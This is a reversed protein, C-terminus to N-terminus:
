SRDRPLKIRKLSHCYKLVFVQHIKEQTGKIEVAKKPRYPLHKKLSFLETTTQNKKNEGSGQLSSGIQRVRMNKLHPPLVGGVLYSRQIVNQFCSNQKAM